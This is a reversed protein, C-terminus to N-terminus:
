DTEKREYRKWLRLCYPGKRTMTGREVMVAQCDWNAVQAGSRFTMM